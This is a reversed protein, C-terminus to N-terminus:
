FAQGISVHIQWRADGPPPTQVPFGLDLRLPGVPSKYRVGVGTGYRLDGFPFDFSDLAIQGADFFIAGDLKETIPHRLELSGEVLTKGGFPEGNSLDCRQGGPCVPSDSTCAKPKTVVCRRATEDCMQSGPCDEDATCAAPIAVCRGVFPGVHRREYGRV